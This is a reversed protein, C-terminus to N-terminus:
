EKEFLVCYGITFQNIGNNVELMHEPSDYKEMDKKVLDSMYLTYSGLFHIISRYTDQLMSNNQIVPHVYSLCRQIEQHNLLFIDGQSKFRVIKLSYLEKLYNYFFPSFGSYFHYPEQHIGSTFPATILIKGSPKCIRVFEKMAQIPEPIHEFVETCLIFDFSNDEVPINDIDSYIDHNKPQNESRFGDIITKNGAFEHSTYSCHQFLKQYPKAGSSIDIVKTNPPLTKAIESVFEDRIRPNFGPKIKPQNFITLLTDM